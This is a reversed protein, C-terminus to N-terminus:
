SEEKQRADREAEWRKRHKDRIAQRSAAQPDQKQSQDLWHPLNEDMEKALIDLKYIAM